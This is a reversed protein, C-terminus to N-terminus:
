SPLCTIGPQLHSWLAVELLKPASQFTLHLHTWAWRRAARISQLSRLLRCATCPCQRSHARLTRTSPTAPLCCTQARMSGTRCLVVRKLDLYPKRAGLQANIHNQLARDLEMRVVTFTPADTQCFLQLRAARSYLAESCGFAARQPSCAAQVDTPTSLPASM